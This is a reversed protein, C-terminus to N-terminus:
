QNASTKSDFIFDYTVNQGVKTQRLIYKYIVDYPRGYINEWKVRVSIPYGGKELIKSGDFIKKLPASARIKAVRKEQSLLKHPKKSIGTETEEYQRVWKNSDPGFLADVEVNNADFITYNMYEFTFVSHTDTFPEMKSPEMKTPNVAIQPMRQADFLKNARLHAGIAFCFLIVNIGVSIM